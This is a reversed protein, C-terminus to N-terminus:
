NLYLDEYTKARTQSLDESFQLLMELQNKESRATLDVTIADKSIYNLDFLFKEIMFKEFIM